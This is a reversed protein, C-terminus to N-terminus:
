LDKCFEVASMVFDSGGGVLLKGSRTLGGALITLVPRAFRKVVDEVSMGTSDFGRESLGCSVERLLALSHLIAGRDEHLVDIAPHDSLEKWMELALDVASDDIGMDSFESLRYIRDEQTEGDGYKWDDEDTFLHVYVYLVESAACAHFFSGRLAELPDDNQFWRDIEARVEGFGDVLRQIFGAEDSEDGDQAWVTPGAAGLMLALVGILATKTM